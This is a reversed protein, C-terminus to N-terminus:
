KVIRGNGGVVGFLPFVLFFVYVGLFIIRFSCSWHNHLMPLHLEPVSNVYLYEMLVLVIPVVSVNEFIYLITNSQTCNWIDTLGELAFIAAGIFM